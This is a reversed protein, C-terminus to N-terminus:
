WRQSPVMVDDMESELRPATDKAPNAEPAPAAGLEAENPPISDIGIPTGTIRRNRMRKVAGVTLLTVGVALVATVAGGVFGREFAYNARM